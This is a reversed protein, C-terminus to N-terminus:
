SRYIERRHRADLVTVGDDVEIIARYDGDRLRLAPRGKMARVDGHGTDAFRQIAAMLREAARRDMRKLGRVARKSYTVNAM